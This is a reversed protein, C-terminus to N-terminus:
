RAVEPLFYTTIKPPSGQTYAVFHLPPQGLAAYAPLQRALRARLEADGHVHAAYHLAVSHPEAKGPIFGYCVLWGIKTARPHLLTAFARAEAAVLPVDAPTADPVLIYLKLRGAPLDTSLITPFANAPLRPVTHGRRALVDWALQPRDPICAYAHFAPPRERSFQLAHWWRQPTGLARMAGLDVFGELLAEGAARYSAESPPDAQAELWVRLETTASVALSLGWPVGHRVGSPLLPATIPRASWGTRAVVRGLVERGRLALPEAIRDFARALEDGRTIM